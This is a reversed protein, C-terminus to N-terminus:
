RNSVQEIEGPKWTQDFWSELPGYLRLITFWGKAPVGAPLNLRYTQGGM